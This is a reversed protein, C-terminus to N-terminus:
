PAADGDAPEGADTADADHALRYLLALADRAVTTGAEDGDDGDGDGGEAAALLEDFAVAAYGALDLEDRDLEDPLLALGGAPTHDDVAAFLEGADELVRDLEVRAHLPLHGALTLRLVTRPKDELDALRVGLGEVDAETSLEAHLDRFRWRGVPREEVRCGDHDLDVVLVRGPAEEDFSTPEPTGAYWVRDDVRTVSHRDGLALYHVRGAALAERALTTSIVEPDDPDPALTDVAGHAVLIRLLGAAPELRETRQAVLDVGPRKNPWPAGVVEVGALPELRADDDLVQVCDPRHRLFTRSRYVSAADLPDHNGPLLLVPVPVTRLAELAQLVTRRDVRNTEFVDGAVVVFAAGTEGALEGLRRLADFRDATYRAQADPGLYYRTLGLQWDSTHLFRM